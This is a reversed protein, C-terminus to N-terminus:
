EKAIMSRVGHEISTRPEWDLLAITQTIDLWLYSASPPMTSEVRRDGHGAARLVRSAFQAISVGEGSGLNMVPPLDIRRVMAAIASTADALWLFDRVAASNRVMVPGTRDLQALIDALVTGRPQGPGCLNALRMSTGGHAATVAECALKVQTYANFAEVPDSPPRPRDTQDGYVMASSIYILRDSRSALTRTLSVAADVHDPGLAEVLAASSTEACHIIIDSAPVNNYSAVQVVGDTDRRSYGTVM